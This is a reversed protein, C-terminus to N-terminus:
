MWQAALDLRQDACNESLNALKIVHFQVSVHVVWLFSNRERSSLHILYPEAHSQTGNAVVAYGHMVDGVAM